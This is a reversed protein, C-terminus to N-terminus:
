PSVKYTCFSFTSKSAAMSWNSWIKLAFSSLMARTAAIGANMAPPKVMTPTTLHSVGVGGSGLHSARGQLHVRIGGGGGCITLGLYAQLAIEKLLFFSLTDKFITRYSRTHGSVPEDVFPDKPRWCPNQNRTFSLTRYFPLPPPLFPLGPM